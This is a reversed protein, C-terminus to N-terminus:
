TLAQHDTLIEFRYGIIYMRFKMLSYVIALLEKESTTYRMEADTLVRSTLSIICIEGEDDIQYLIGSIGVDSADTQVKFCKGPMYHSLAVKKLFNNKMEQFAISHSENGKWEGVSSLLDRFPGVFDAHRVSFKRYYGCVGLFTQQKKKNQPAPFERIVSLRDSDLRIGMASLRFGLFSM